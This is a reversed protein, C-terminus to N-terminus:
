VLAGPGADDGRRGFLGLHLALHLAVLERAGRLLAAQAPPRGSCPGPRREDSKGRRRAAAATLRVKCFHVLQAAPVPGASQRACYHSARLEGRKGRRRAAAATLPPPASLGVCRFCADRRLLRAADARVLAFPAFALLAPPPADARM